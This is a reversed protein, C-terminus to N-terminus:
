VALCNALALKSQLGQSSSNSLIAKFYRCSVLSFSSLPSYSCIAVFYHCCLSSIPAVYRCFLPLTAAFHRRFLPSHCKFVFNRPWCLRVTVFFVRNQLLVQVRSGFRKAQKYWYMNSSPVKTRGWFGNNYEQDYTKMDQHIGPGPARDM